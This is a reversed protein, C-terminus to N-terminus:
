STQDTGRPVFTLTITNYGHDYRYGLGDSMSRILRIGEGGGLRDDLPADTGRSRAKTINFKVADDTFTMRLGESKDLVIEIRGERGDFGHDIINALLEETVMQARLSLEMPLDSCADEVAGIAIDFASEDADVVIRDTRHFTFSLITTDDPNGNQTTFDGIAARIAGVSGDPTTCRSLADKTREIGFYEGHREAETVGDTFLTIVDGEDMTISDAEYRFPRMGFFPARTCELTGATGGRALVPPIHGANVYDLVGTDLDLVAIFSTVFMSSPNYDLLSDNIGTAAMGLDDVSMLKERITSRSRMMFLAASVGKDSVDAVVFAVKRDGVKFVDYFDGGVDKAAEMTACVDFGVKWPISGTDPLVSQQLRSAAEMETESRARDTYSNLGVFVFRALVTLFLVMIITVLTFIWGGSGSVYFWTLYFSTVCVTFVVMTWYYPMDQGTTSDIFERIRPVQYRRMYLILITGVSASSIVFPIRSWSYGDLKLFEWIALIFMGCWVMVMISGYFSVLNRCRGDGEYLWHAGVLGMIPLLPWWTLIVNLGYDSDYIVYLLPVLPIIVILAWGAVTAYLPGKRKLAMDLIIALVIATVCFYISWEYAAGATAPDM